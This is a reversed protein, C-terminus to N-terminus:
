IERGDVKPALRDIAAQVNALHPDLAQAARFAELALKERGLQELIVGLGSLAGFHRPELALAREIDALAMSLDGNLFFATARMNWGEAFDPDHDTLATFHHLAKVLDDKELAERGRMLLLDMTDSGSRSWLRQIQQEIRQHPGDEAEALQAFLQDLRGARGEPTSLDFGDAASDGSAAPSNRMSPASASPKEPADPASPSAQAPTAWPTGARASEACTVSSAAAGALVLLSAAISRNSHRM